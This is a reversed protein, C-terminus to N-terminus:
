RADQAAERAERAAKWREPQGELNQTWVYIPQNWQLPRHVELTWFGSAEYSRSTSGLKSKSALQGEVIWLTDSTYAVRALVQYDHRWVLESWQTRGLRAEKWWSDLTPGFTEELLKRAITSSRRGKGKEFVVLQTLPKGLTQKKLEEEKTM